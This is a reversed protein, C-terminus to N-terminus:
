KWHWREVQAKSNAFVRMKKTEKVVKSEEQSLQLCLFIFLLFFCISPLVCACLLFFLMLVVHIFPFSFSAQRLVCLRLQRFM